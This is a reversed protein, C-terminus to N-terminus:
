ARKRRALGVLGLLGSGFLWVAAPVPVVAFGTDAIANFSKVSSVGNLDFPDLDLYIHESVSTPELMDHAWGALNGIEFELIGLTGSWGFATLDGGYVLQGTSCNNGAKNCDFDTTYDTGFMADTSYIGFTSGARLVGKSSINADIILHGGEFPVDFIGDTPANLSFLSTDTSEAFFVTDATVGRKTRGNTYNIAIDTFDVTKSGFDEWEPLRNDIPVTGAWAAGPIIALAILGAMMSGLWQKQQKM